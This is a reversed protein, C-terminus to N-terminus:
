KGETNEEDAASDGDSNADQKRKPWKFGGFSKSEPQNEDAKKVLEERKHKSLNRVRAQQAKRIPRIKRFDIVLAAIIGAYGIILGGYMMVMDAGELGAPVQGGKVLYSALWSLGVAVIAVILFAWWRRRWKKYEATLTEDDPLNAAIKRDQAEIDKVKSRKDKETRKGNSVYVSEGAKRVPKASGASKRSSGKHEDDKYRQNMPNRQSM